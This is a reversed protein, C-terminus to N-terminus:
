WRPPQCCDPEAEVPQDPVLGLGLGARVEASRVVEVKEEAAEM